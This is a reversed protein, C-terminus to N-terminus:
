VNEAPADPIFHKDKRQELRQLLIGTCTELATVEEPTADACGAWRIKLDEDILYVYGVKSNTMSMPEREYEMNQSSVLYAHHLHKPITSRLSSVFLNVLLSKLLNEQLNIQLYQFLPNSSFRDQSVQSFGATHIESIKTTIMALITIRGVCMDTTNKVQSTLSKGEIDPLYLAQEARILSKPAIWTKGGHRRTRNLDHFYGKTAQKVLHMRDELVKDYDMYEAMKEKLTKRTTTPRNRVGLPRNLYPLPEHDYPEEYRVKKEPLVIQEVTKGEAFVARSLHFSRRCFAWQPNPTVRCFFAM